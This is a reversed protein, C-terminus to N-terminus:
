GKKLIKWLVVGPGQPDSGACFPRVQERVFFSGWGLLYVPAATKQRMFTAPPIIGEAM